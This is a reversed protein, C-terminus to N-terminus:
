TEFKISYKTNLKQENAQTTTDNILLMKTGKGEHIVNKIDKMTALDLPLITSSNTMNQTEYDYIKINEKKIETVNNKDTIKEIKINKADEPLEVIISRENTNENITFTQLWKVIEGLTIKGHSLDSPNDSYEVFSDTLLNSEIINNSFTEQIESEDLSAKFIKVDDILGSFYNSTSHKGRNTNMYAGIVLDNESEAIDSISTVLRGELVGNVYISIMTGNIVGTVYTEDVIPTSGTIIYWSVGDFVSFKAVKEPGTLKNISLVFSNEKGLITFEPSGNTYNPKIWASVTLHNLDSNLENNSLYVPFSQEQRTSNGLRWSLIPPPMGIPIQEETFVFKTPITQQYIVAVDEPELQYDFLQVGDILGSFMNFASSKMNPTIAAGIVIDSYSTIEQLTKLEIQGRENVFPVGDHFEYAERTGNVYIEIATKNFRATLHSWSGEPITSTSEVTTWKIGDFISFKAIKQPDILNNISLVFSKGKSVVTFEPSGQSYDPKVWASIAM